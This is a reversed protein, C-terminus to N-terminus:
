CDLMSKSLYIGLIETKLPITFQIKIENGLYRISTYVFAIVKKYQGRIKCATQNVWKISFKKHLHKFTNTCMSIVITKGIKDWTM